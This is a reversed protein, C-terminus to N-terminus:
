RPPGTVLNRVMLACAPATDAPYVRPAPDWPMKVAWTTVIEVITRALIARDVDPSVHKARLELYAAWLDVLAYRGAGFWVAALEPIEGACRDLVMVSTRHRHMLRHLEVTIREVEVALSEGARLRRRSGVTTTLELAVVAAAIRDTVSSAVAALDPSSPLGTGAVVEPTDAWEVVAAFLSEKSDVARYLTGKSVGLREAIDDMQTHQFGHEVFAAAAAHLLKPIRDPPTSRAM